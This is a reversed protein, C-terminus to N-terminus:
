KKGGTLDYAEGTVADHEFPVMDPCFNEKLAEKQNFYEWGRFLCTYYGEMEAKICYACASCRHPCPSHKSRMRIDATPWKEKEMANGKKRMLSTM